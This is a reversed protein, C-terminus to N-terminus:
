FRFTTIIKGGIEINKKEGSSLMFEGKPKNTPNGNTKERKVTFGETKWRISSTAQTDITTYIVEGKEMRAKKDQDVEVALVTKRNSLFVFIVFTLFLFVPVKLKM